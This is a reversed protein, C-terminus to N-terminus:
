RERLSIEVQRCNDLETLPYQRYTGERRIKGSIKVDEAHRVYVAPIDHPYVGRVSPQEDFLGEKQTGQSKMTLDLNEISVNEIVSEQEGGIFLSSEVTMFIHDFTINRIVGPHEGKRRPTASIFIPEGKGWWRPAFERQPCDAYQKTNGSVHHVHIDEIEAGDRVWIGVGRSCDRFVCDSLVVHRIANITETGIKLASDHSYLMCNSITINECSGYKAAMPASNKIVIADDGAKIICNSIVVDQCTDPDIGDNNAGRQDNLIRIGEVIVHRCGAMHLTWFAADRFTVGKITLNEIDEFFTTRPREQIRVNKPCEDLGSDAGDDYFVKDGQGYITGEGTISINKQHFACLFCGGEWGIDENPDEICNSIDLIDEQNLSSILVAGKELHLTINDKLLITGSLFKGTPITVTGGGNASCKDIAEQIAKRNNTIGDAIAGHESIVCNM